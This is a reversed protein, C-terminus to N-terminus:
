RRLLGDVVGGWFRSNKGSRHESRDAIRAAFRGANIGIWRIPEPEWRRSLPGVVPLRLLESGTHQGHDLERDAILDAVIRGFLNTASVGDGVYGGATIVGTDWDANVTCAWNRPIGLPGGWHHTIAVERTIPFLEVLARHIRDKMTSNADFKQQIASGFHYPAGRGGFAFRGDATRQGYVILHRTDDFTPRHELGISAWMDNSLPETAIMMSYLPVMNRHQHRLESTYGETAQVIYKTSIPGQDTDVVGRRVSIARVPAFIRVGKRLVARAVGHTLKAPHVALCHPTYMAGALETMSCMEAAARSDLFTYDDSFGFRQYTEVEHTVRALQPSTRAATFTGGRQSGADIQEADLVREIEDLTNHMATQLAIASANGHERELRELGMPLLASAWGGNRGSAGFGVGSADIVAISADPLKDALYYAAWLGTLGAGIVTIDATMSEGLPQEDCREADTLTDEWLSRPRELHTSPNRM